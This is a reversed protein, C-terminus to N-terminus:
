QCFIRKIFMTAFSGPPLSFELILKQKDTYIEDDLIDLSLNKPKVIGPRMLSKFFAQRTKLSNFMTKNIGQSQLIKPFIGATLDDPMKTNAALTPIRLNALYRCDEKNLKEYFFYDGCIGPYSKLAISLRAKLVERLVENWIYSQYASFYISLKQRPIQRLLALFGNPRVKLINFVKKEFETKALKCCAEWDGWNKALGSKREHELRSDGTNIATLYIKFAGNFHKKLIKEALFGLSKDFSGFRQDDFYNAFGFSEVNKIESLASRIAAKNLERIAIKFRNEKILDPGMPRDLFGIFSLSYNAEKINSYRPGKISIYQHALAHKDKRGGFSFNKFPVKIKKSILQLLEITNFNRKVLLYVGFAGVKALPLDVIEEVIFDELICKIKLKM